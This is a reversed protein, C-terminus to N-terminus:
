EQLRLSLELGYVEFGLGKMMLELGLGEAKFGQARLARMAPRPTTSRASSGGAGSQFVTSVRELCTCPNLSLTLPKVMYWIGYVMYWIGYVMEGNVM